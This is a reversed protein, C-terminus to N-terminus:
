FGRSVILNEDDSGLLADPVNCHIGVDREHGCKKAVTGSVKDCSEIRDEYGTCSSTDHLITTLLIHIFSIFNIASRLKTYHTKEVGRGYGSITKVTGYGLHRCIVNSETEGFGDDCITGWKDNKLVEVRGAWPVAGARVRITQYM